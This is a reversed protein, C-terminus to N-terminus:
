YKMKIKKSKFMLNPKDYSIKLTSIDDKHVDKITSLVKNFNGLNDICFDIPQKSYIANTSLETRAISGNSTSGRSSYIELGNETINFKVADVIRQLGKLATFM